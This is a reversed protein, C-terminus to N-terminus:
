APEEVHSQQPNGSAAVGKISIPKEGTPQRPRAAKLSAARIDEVKGTMTYSERIALLGQLFSVMSEAGQNLNVGGAMLADCCGKTRFDYLPLHLDNEGLFWDFAKRQMTLFGSNGTADYAARLMMVTGGAEIPQQDFSARAGGREYWGNCGIFTFHEGDFTNALLLECTKEAVQRYKSSELTMGAVFLAHPLVANDYTLIDEFWPWDPLSSGKYQAMLGDAALELERKIDSAGPFQRLYDSMGLISYAMGRMHQKSVHQVSRDFYDKVVSVYSPSPPKAMVSGLAWLLRGLADNAPEYSQWTRDFNMFNRVTGDANQSHLVFSLYSDFLRRVEAEPYQAHYKGVAILARANDDTTYGFERWPVTFKAHQFMGTDDTMRRLHDLSPEPVEISS